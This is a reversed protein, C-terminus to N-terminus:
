KMLVMKKIDTFKGAQLKYFYIGSTLIFKDAEFEYEYVGSSKEENVITAIENGLIDYVKLSVLFDSHASNLEVTNNYQVQQQIINPLSFRIKTVPNFPNPYNQSLSFSAPVYDQNENVDLIESLPRKWVAIPNSGYNGNAVFIFDNYVLISTVLIQGLNDHKKIFSEGSNTSVYFGSDTGAFVNQGYKYFCRVYANQVNYTILWNQGYDTSRFIKGDQTGFFILSDEALVAIGSGNNIINWNLGNDTTVRLGSLACYVRNGSVALYGTLNNSIPNWTQGNDTSQYVKDASAYVNSNNGALSMIMKNSLSTINWSLGSDTSKYVGPTQTPTYALGCYLNGNSQCLSWAYALQQFYGSWNEGNDSSRFLYATGAAYLVNNYELLYMIDGELGSNQGVPIWQAQTLNFSFIFVIVTIFNIKM